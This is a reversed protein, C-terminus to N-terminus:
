RRGRTGGMTGNKRYGAEFKEVLADETYSENRVEEMIEQARESSSVNAARQYADDRIYPAIGARYRASAEEVDMPM